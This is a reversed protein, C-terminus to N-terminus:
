SSASYFNVIPYSRLMEGTEKIIPEEHSPQDPCGRYDSSLAATAGDPCCGFETEECTGASDLDGYTSCGKFGPGEASTLGDPCCGFQTNRCLGGTLLEDAFAIELTLFWKNRDFWLSVDSPFIWFQKIEYRPQSRHSNQLRLSVTVDATVMPVHTSTATKRTTLVVRNTAAVLTSLKTEKSAFFWDRNRVEMVHCLVSCTTVLLLDDRM